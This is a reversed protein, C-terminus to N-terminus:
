SPVHQEVEPKAAGVDPLLLNLIRDAKANLAIVEAELAIMSGEADGLRKEVRKLYELLQDTM